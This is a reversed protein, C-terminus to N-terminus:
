VNLVPPTATVGPSMYTANTFADSKMWALGVTEADMLRIPAEEGRGSTLKTYSFLPASKELRVVSAHCVVLPPLTANEAVKEFGSTTAVGSGALMVRIAVPRTPIAPHILRRLFALM